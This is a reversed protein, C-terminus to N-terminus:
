LMIRKLVCHYHVTLGAYRCLRGAENEANEHPSLENSTGWEADAVSNCLKMGCIDLLCVTENQIIENKSFATNYTGPYFINFM